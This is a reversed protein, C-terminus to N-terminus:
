FCVGGLHCCTGSIAEAAIRKGQAELLDECERASDGKRFSVFKFSFDSVKFGPITYLADLLNKLATTLGLLL